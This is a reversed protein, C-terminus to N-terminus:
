APSWITTAMASGPSRNSPVSVMMSWATRGHFPAASPSPLGARVPGADAPASPHRRTPCPFPFARSQPLGSGERQTGMGAMRTRRIPRGGEPARGRAPRQVPLHHHVADSRESRQHFPVGADDRRGPPRGQPPADAAADVPDGGDKAHGSPIELTWGRRFATSSSWSSGATTSCRCCRPGTATNRTSSLRPPSSGLDRPRPVPKEAQFRRTDLVTARSEEHFPSPRWPDSQRHIEMPMPERKRTIDPRAAPTQSRGSPEGDTRQKGGHRPFNEQRRVERLAIRRAPALLHCHQSSDSPAAAM